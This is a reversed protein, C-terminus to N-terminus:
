IQKRPSGKCCFHIRWILANQMVQDVGQSTELAACVQPQQDHPTGPLRGGGRRQDVLRVALDLMGAM